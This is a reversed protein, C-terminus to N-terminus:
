LAAESPLKCRLGSLARSEIAEDMVVSRSSAEDASEDIDLLAVEGVPKSELELSVVLFSDWVLFRRSFYSTRGLTDMGVSMAGDSYARCHM